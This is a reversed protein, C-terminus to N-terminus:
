ISVLLGLKVIDIAATDKMRKQTKEPIVFEDEESAEEEEEEESSAVVPLQKNRQRSTSTESHRLALAMQQAFSLSSVM